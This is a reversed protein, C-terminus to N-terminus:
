AAGALLMSLRNALDRFYFDHNKDKPETTYLTITEPTNRCVLIAAPYLWVMTGMEPSEWMGAIGGRRKAFGPIITGRFCGTMFFMQESAASFSKMDLFPTSMMMMQARVEQMGLACNLTFVPFAYAKRWGDEDLPRQDKILGTLYRTYERQRANNRLTGLVRIIGRFIFFLIASIWLVWGVFYPSLM